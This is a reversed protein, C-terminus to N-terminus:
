DSKKTQPQRRRHQSMRWLLSRNWMFLHCYNRYPTKKIMTRPMSITNRNISRAVSGCTKSPVVDARKAVVFLVFTSGTFRQSMIPGTMLTMKEIKQRGLIFNTIKHCSAACYWCPIQHQTPRANRRPVPLCMCRGISHPQIPRAARRMPRVIRKACSACSRQNKQKQLITAWVMAMTMKRPKTANPVHEADSLVLQFMGHTSGAPSEM